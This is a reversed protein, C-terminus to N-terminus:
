FSLRVAVQIQRPSYAYNSNSNTYTGFSNNYQLQTSYTQPGTYASTTVGSTSGGFTYGTNNVSTYNQHNFVNFCEGFM